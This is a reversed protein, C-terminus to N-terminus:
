NDGRLTDVMELHRALVTVTGLSWAGTVRIRIVEGSWRDISFFEIMNDPGIIVGLQGARTVLREVSETSADDWGLLAKLAVYNASAM